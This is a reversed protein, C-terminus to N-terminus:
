DGILPLSYHVNCSRYNFEADSAFPTYLRYQSLRVPGLFQNLLANYSSGNLINGTFDSHGSGSEGIFNTTKKHTKKGTPKNSVVRLLKSCPDKDVETLYREFNYELHSGSASVYVASFLKNNQLENQANEICEYIINDLNVKNSESSRSKNFTMLQNIFSRMVCYGYHVFRDKSKDDFILPISGNSKLENAYSIQSSQLRLSEYTCTLDKREPYLPIWKDFYTSAIVLDFFTDRCEEKDRVSQILKIIESEIRDFINRTNHNVYSAASPNYDLDTGLYRSAAWHSIPFIQGLFLLYDMSNSTDPYCLSIKRDYEHYFENCYRSILGSVFQTSLRNSSKFHYYLDYMSLFDDPHYFGRTSNPNVFQKIYATGFTKAEWVVDSDIFVYDRNTYQIDSLWPLYYRELTDIEMRKAELTFKEMFGHWALKYENYGLFTKPKNVLEEYRQQDSIGHFLHETLVSPIRRILVGRRTPALPFLLGANIYHLVEEETLGSKQCFETITLVQETIGFRNNLEM